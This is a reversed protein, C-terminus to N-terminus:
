KCSEEIKQVHHLVMQRDITLLIAIEHASFAASHLVAIAQIRADRMDKGAIWSREENPDPEAAELAIRHLHQLRQHALTLEAHQHAIAHQKEMAEGCAQMIVELADQDGSRAREYTARGVEAM